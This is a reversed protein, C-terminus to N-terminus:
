VRERCSARGDGGVAVVVDAQSERALTLGEGAATTFLIRPEYLSFDLHKGIASLVQSKDNQGSVPNVIFDIRM